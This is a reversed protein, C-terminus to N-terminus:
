RSRLRKRLTIAEEMEDNQQLAEEAVKLAEEKHGIAELALAYVLFDMPCRHKENSYAARALSAARDVDGSQLLFRALMRLPATEFRAYTSVKGAHDALYEELLTAATNADGAKAYADACDAWEQPNVGMGEYKGDPHERLSKLREKAARQLSGTGALARARWDRAGPFAPNLELCRDLDPLADEDRNMDMLVIAREFHAQANSPDLKIAEILLKHAKQYDGANSLDIAEDIIQKATAM